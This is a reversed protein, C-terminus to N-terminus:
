RPPVIRVSTEFRRFGSYKALGAARGVLPAATGRPIAGEYVESMKAPLWLSSDPDRRYTVDIEASSEIERMVPFFAEGFERHHAHQVPAANGGGAAVQGGAGGSAGASGGGSPPPAPQSPEEQPPAPPQAPQTVPQIQTTQGYDQSAPEPTGAADRASNGEAMTLVDAFHRM